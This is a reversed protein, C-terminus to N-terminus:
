IRECGRVLLAFSSFLLITASVFIVDFM